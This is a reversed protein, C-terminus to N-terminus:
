NLQDLLKALHQAAVDNFHVGDVSVSLSRQKGLFDRGKKYKSVVLDFIMLAPHPSLYAVPCQILSSLEKFTNIYSLKNEQALSLIIANYIQVQQNLDSQSDEGICPIGVLIVQPYHAMLIEICTRYDQKFAHSNQAPISGRRKVQNVILQWLPHITNLHNLYLDNTGIMLVCGDAKPLEQFGRLRNLVGAVTDGGLGHNIGRWRQLYNIYSIGPEGKTLSDGFCVLKKNSLMNITYTCKQHYAM